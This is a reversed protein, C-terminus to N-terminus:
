HPRNGGTIFLHEALIYSGQPPDPQTSGYDTFAARDPHVDIRVLALGKEKLLENLDHAGSGHSAGYVLLIKEGPTALKALGDALRADDRRAALFAVHLADIERKEDPSLHPYRVQWEGAHGFNELGNNIKVKQLARYYARSEDKGAEYDVLSVKIGERAAAQIIRAEDCFREHSNGNTTRYGCSILCEAYQDCSLKGAAVGDAFRQMLVASELCLITVGQARLRHAIEPRALWHILPASRAHSTDGLHVIRAGDAFAKGIVPTLTEALAERRERREEYIRYATVACLSLVVAV